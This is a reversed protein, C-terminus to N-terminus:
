LSRPQRPRRDYRANSVLQRDATLGDHWRTHVHEAAIRSGTRGALLCSGRAARQARLWVAARHHLLQGAWTHPHRELHGNWDLVRQTHRVDWSSDPRVLAAVSRGRRRVFVAPEEDPERRVRLALALLCRQTRALEKQIGSGCPWATSHFDVIPQCVREVIAVRTSARVIKARAGGCAAWYAALCQARVRAASRKWSGDNAVWRGLVKMESVVSWGQREFTEAEPCGRPALVECSGPKLQLGWRESLVVNLQEILDVADSMNAALAYLNDIYVGFTLRGGGGGQDIRFGRHSDAQLVTAVATEVPWRGLAGALRSGTLSGTTRWAIHREESGVRFQVSPLYQLALAAGATSEELGRATADLVIEKLPLADYYSRIDAQAVGGASHSDMMREVALRVGLSIDLTQTKPRAGILVGPAPPVCTDIFAHVRTALACDLVAVPITLPVVMGVEAPSPKSTAKGWVM